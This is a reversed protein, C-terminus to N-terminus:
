GTQLWSSFLLALSVDFKEDFLFDKSDTLGDTVQVIETVFFIM